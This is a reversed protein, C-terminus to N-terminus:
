AAAARSETWSDTAKLNGDPHNMEIKQFRVQVEEQHGYQDFEPDKVNLMFHRVKTIKVGTLTHTYYNEEEGKDNIRYWDIKMSQLTKGRCCADFLDPSAADITKTILAANHKRVATLAGTNKDSPISVDYDFALVEATGVRGQIKVNAKIQSGQDDTITLYAPSAM